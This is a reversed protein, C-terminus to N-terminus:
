IAACLRAHCSGLSSGAPSLRHKIWCCSRSEGQRIQHGEQFGLCALRSRGSLREPSHRPKHLWRRWGRREVAKKTGRCCSCSDTCSSSRVASAKKGFSSCCWACHKASARRGFGASGCHKASAKRGFGVSGMMELLILRYGDKISVIQRAGDTDLLEFRALPHDPQQAPVDKM